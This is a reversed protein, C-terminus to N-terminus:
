ELPEDGDQESCAPCKSGDMTLIRRGCYKCYAAPNSTKISHQKSLPQDFYSKISRAPAMGRYMTTM